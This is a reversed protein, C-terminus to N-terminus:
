LLVEFSLQRYISSRFNITRVIEVNVEIDVLPTNDVADGDGFGYVPILNTSYSGFGYIVINAM